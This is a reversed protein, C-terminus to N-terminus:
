LRGRFKRWVFMECLYFKAVGMKNVWTSDRCVSSRELAEEFSEPSNPYGVVAQSLNILQIETGVAPLFLEAARM